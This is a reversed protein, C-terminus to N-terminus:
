VPETLVVVRLSAWATARDRGHGAERAEVALLAVRHGVLPPAAGALLAAVRDALAMAEAKGGARSWAVLTVVHRELATGTGGADSTELAEFALYPMPANRPAGDHVRGAGGLLGALAADAALLGRLAAQLRTPADTM